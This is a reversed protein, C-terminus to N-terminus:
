HSHHMYHQRPSENWTVFVCFGMAAIYVSDHNHAIQTYKKLTAAIMYTLSANTCALRIKAVILHTSADTRVGNVGLFGFCEGYRIGM